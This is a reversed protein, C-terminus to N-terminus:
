KSILKVLKKALLFNIFVYIAVLFLVIFINGIAIVM